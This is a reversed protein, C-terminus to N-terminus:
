DAALAEFSYAIMSSKAPCKLSGIRSQLHLLVRQKPADFGRSATPAPRYPM